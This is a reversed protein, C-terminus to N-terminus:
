ADLGYRSVLHTVALMFREDLRRPLDRELWNSRGEPYTSVILETAPFAYLADSM